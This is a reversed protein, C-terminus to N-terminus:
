NPYHTTTTTTTTTTQRGYSFIGILVCVIVLGVIIMIINLIGRQYM